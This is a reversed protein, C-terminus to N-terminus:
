NVSLSSHFVACFLACPMRVCICMYFYVCYAFFFVCLHLCVLDNRFCLYHDVWQCTLFTRGVTCPASCLQSKYNHDPAPQSRGWLSIPVTGACEGGPAVLHWWPLWCWWRSWWWWTPHPVKSCWSLWCWWMVMVVLGTGFHLQHGSLTVKFSNKQQSICVCLIYRNSNLIHHLFSYNTHLWWGRFIVSPRVLWPSLPHSGGEHAWYGPFPAILFVLHHSTSTSITMPM